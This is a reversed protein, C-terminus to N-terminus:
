RICTKHSIPTEMLFSFGLSVCRPVWASSSLTHLNPLFPVRLPTSTMTTFWPFRVRDTQVGRTDEDKSIFISREEPYLSSEEWQLLPCLDCHSRQTLSLGNVSVSWGPWAGLYDNTRTKECCSARTLFVSTVLWWWGSSNPFPWISVSCTQDGGLIRRASMKGSCRTCRWSPAQTLTIPRLFGLFLDWCWLVWSQSGWPLATRSPERVRSSKVQTGKGLLTLHQTLGSVQGLSLGTGEKGGSRNGLVM